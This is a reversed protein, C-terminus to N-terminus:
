SALTQELSDQIQPSSDFYSAAIGLQLARRTDQSRIADAQVTLARAILTHQAAVAENRQRAAVVAAILAAILLVVLSAIGGRALRLTRRHQRIHEGVLLDKDIERVTAAVDAVCERLRPNAQDVQEADHLWRLDVWRPTELFAGCLAPPLAASTRDSDGADD